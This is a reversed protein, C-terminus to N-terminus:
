LESRRSAHLWPSVWGPNPHLSLHRQCSWPLPGPSNPLCWGMAPYIHFWEAVHTLVVVVLRATGAGILRRPIPSV